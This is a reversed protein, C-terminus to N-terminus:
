SLGEYKAVIVTATPSAAWGLVTPSLRHLGGNNVGGSDRMIELELYSGPTASIPFTFSFPIVTDQDPLKSSNSSLTQVGNSLLRSFLFATGAGSTRGYRLVFTVLYDGAQNFTLKGLGDLTASTTVVGPGFEVKRPTDLAAPAQSTATSSGVLVGQYGSAVPKGTINAWDVYQFSTTGDGDSTLVQRNAASSAHKVEHRDADLISAHEVM